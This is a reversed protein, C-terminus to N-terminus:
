YAEACAIYPTPDIIQDTAKNVLLVSVHLQLTANGAYCM